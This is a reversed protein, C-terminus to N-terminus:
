SHNEEFFLIYLHDYRKEDLTQNLSMENITEDLISLTM